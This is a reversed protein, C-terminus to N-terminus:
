MGLFDELDSLKSKVDNISDVRSRIAKIDIGQRMLYAEGTSNITRRDPNQFKNTLELRDIFEYLKHHERKAIKLDWRIFQQALAYWGIGNQHIGIGCLLFIANKELNADPDEL